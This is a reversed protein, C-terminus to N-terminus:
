YTQIFYVHAYCDKLWHQKLGPAIQLTVEKELVPQGARCKFDVMNGHNLTITFNQGNQTVFRDTLPNVWKFSQQSDSSKKRFIKVPVNPDNLGCDLM